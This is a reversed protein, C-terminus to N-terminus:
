ALLFYDFVLRSRDAFFCAVFQWQLFMHGHKEFLHSAVL